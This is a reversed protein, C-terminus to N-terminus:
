MGCEVGWQKSGVRRVGCEASWTGCEVTKVPVTVPSSHVLSNVHNTEGWPKGHRCEPENTPRTECIPNEIAMNGVPGTAGHATRSAILVGEAKREEREM